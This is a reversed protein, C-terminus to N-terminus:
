TKAFIVASRLSSTQPRGKAPNEFKSVWRAQIQEMLHDHVDKFIENKKHVNIIMENRLKKLEKILEM